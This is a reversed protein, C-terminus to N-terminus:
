EKVPNNPDYEYIWREKVWALLSEKNDFCILLMLHTNDWHVVTVGEKKVEVQFELSKMSELWTQISHQNTAVEFQNFQLLLTPDQKHVKLNM